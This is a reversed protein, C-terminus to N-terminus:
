HSNPARRPCFQDPSGHQTLVAAIGMAMQPRRIPTFLRMGPSGVAGGPLGSTGTHSVGRPAESGRGRELGGARREKSRATRPKPHRGGSEARHGGRHAARPTGGGTHRGRDPPQARHRNRQRRTAPGGREWRGRCHRGRRTAGPLVRVQAVPEPPRDPNDLGEERDMGTTRFVGERGPPEASDRRYDGNIALKSQWSGSASPASM